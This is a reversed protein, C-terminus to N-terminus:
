DWFYFFFIGGFNVVPLEHFAQVKKFNNDLLVKQKLFFKSKLVGNIFVFGIAILLLYKLM